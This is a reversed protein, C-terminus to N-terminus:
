SGKLKQDLESIAKQVMKETIPIERGNEDVVAAGNFNPKKLPVVSKDDRAKVREGKNSIKDRM